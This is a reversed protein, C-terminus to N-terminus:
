EDPLLDRVKVGLAKAIKLATALRTDGGTIVIHLAKKDYGTKQLFEAKTQFKDYIAASVKHGFEKLFAKKQKQSLEV